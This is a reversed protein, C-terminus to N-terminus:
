QRERTLYRQVLSVILVMLFFIVSITSGGAIDQKEYGRQYAQFVLTQTADLPGGRTMVQIQTFIGFAQITIVVLFFIATNRLGPWTIFRFKQWRSAGDVSAAEYQETPISMRGALLILTWFPLSKWIHMLMALSLALTQDFRKPDPPKPAGCSQIPHAPSAMPVLASSRMSAFGIVTYVTHAFEYM